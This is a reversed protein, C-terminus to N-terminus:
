AIAIDSFPLDTVGLRDAVAQRQLDVDATLREDVSVFSLTASAVGGASVTGRVAGTFGGSESWTLTFSSKAADFQGAALVTFDKGHASDFTVTAEFKGSPEVSKVDLSLTGVKVGRSIAGGQWDGTLLANGRAPAISALAGPRATAAHFGDGEGGPGGASVVHGLDIAASFLARPEVTEILAYRSQNMHRM